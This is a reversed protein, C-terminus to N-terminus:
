HFGLSGGLSVVPFGFSFKLSSKFARLFCHSFRLLVCPFGSSLKLSVTSFGYSFRLFFCLFGICFRLSAILCIVSVIPVGVFFKLFITFFGYSFRLFFQLFMESVLCSEHLSCTSLIYPNHISYAHYCVELIELKFASGTGM